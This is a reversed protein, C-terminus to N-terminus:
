CLEKDHGGEKRNREKDKSSHDLILLGVDVVVNLSLTSVWESYESVIVSEMCDCIVVHARSITRAVSTFFLLNIMNSGLRHGALIAAFM